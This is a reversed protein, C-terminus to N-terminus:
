GVATGRRKEVDATIADWNEPTLERQGPDRPAPTVGGKAGVIPGTKAYIGVTDNVTRKLMDNMMDTQKHFAKEQKISQYITFGSWAAWSVACAVAFGLSFAGSVLAVTAGTRGLFTSNVLMNAVGAIGEIAGVTDAVTGIGMFILDVPDGKGSTLGQLFQYYEVPLWAVGAVAGVTTGTNKFFASLVSRQARALEDSVGVLSGIGDLLSFNSAKIASGLASGMHALAGLAHLVVIGISDWTPSTMNLGAYISRSATLVSMVGSSLAAKYKVPDVGAPVATATKDILKALDAKITEVSGGPRMTAWLATFITTFNTKYQAMAEANGRFLTEALADLSPAIIKKIAEEATKGDFIIPDIVDTGPMLTKMLGSMSLGMDKLSSTLYESDIYPLDLSQITKSWGNDKTAFMREAIWADGGSGAFFRGDGSGNAAIGKGALGTGIMIAAMVDNFSYSALNSSPLPSVSKDWEANASMKSVLSAGMVLGELATQVAHRYGWVEKGGPAALQSTIRELNGALDGVGIEGAGIKDLLPGLLAKVDAKFQDRVEPSDGGHFQNAMAQITPNFLHTINNPVTSGFESAAVKKLGDLDIKLDPFLSGGLGLSQDFDVVPLISGLGKLERETKNGALGMRILGDLATTPDSITPLVNKDFFEAYTKDAIASRQKVFDDPLVMSYFGLAANYEKLITTVDKGSKLGDNLLGGNVIDREFADEVKTRLDKMKEDRTITDNIIEFADKNTDAPAVRYGSFILKFAKLAKETMQSNVDADSGLIAISKDLDKLIEQDNYIGRQNDGLSDKYKGFTAKTQLLDLYMILKQEATYNQPNKVVDISEFSKDKDKLGEMFGQNIESMFDSNFLLDIVPQIPATPSSDGNSTAAQSVFKPSSTQASTSSLITLGATTMGDYTFPSAKKVTTSATKGQSTSNEFKPDSNANLRLFSVTDIDSSAPAISSM